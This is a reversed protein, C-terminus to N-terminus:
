SHHGYKTASVSTFHSFGLGQDCPSDVLCLRVGEKNVVGRWKSFIVTIDTDNTEHDSFVLADFEATTM